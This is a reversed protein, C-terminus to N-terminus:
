ATKASAAVLHLPTAKLAELEAPTADLLHYAMHKKAYYAPFRAVEEMAYPRRISSPVYESVGGRTRLENLFYMSANPDIGPAFGIDAFARVAPARKVAPQQPTASEEAM